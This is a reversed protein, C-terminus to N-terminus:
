TTGEKTKEHILKKIDALSKLDQVENDQIQIEFEAEIDIVLELMDLSDIVLADKIVSDESLNDLQDEREIYKLILKRLRDETNM